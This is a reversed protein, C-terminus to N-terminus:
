GPGGNGLSKICIAGSGRRVWFLCTVPTYSLQSLAQKALLLDDTRNREGGGVQNTTRPATQKILTNTPFLNERSDHNM